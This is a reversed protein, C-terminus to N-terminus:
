CGSELELFFGSMEMDVRTLQAGAQAIEAGLTRGKSNGLYYELTPGLQQTTVALFHRNAKYFPDDQPTETVVLCGQWLGMLVIRHWEFYLAEDQHINILIKSRRLVTALEKGDPFAPANASFPRHPRPIHIYSTHPSLTHALHAMIDARRDTYSGIFAVDIPRESWDTQNQPQWNRVANTLGQFHFADAPISAKPEYQSFGSVFGPPLYTAPFGLTNFKAASQVNFDLVWGAAQLYPAARAFWRSHWQETNLMIARYREDVELVENGGELYFFEHPAVVVPIVDSDIQGITEDATSANYGAGKLAAAILEAVDRMFYNGLSHALVLFRWQRSAGYHVRLFDRGLQQVTRTSELATNADVPWLIQGQELWPHDDALPQPAHAAAQTTADIARLLSVRALLADNDTGLRRPFPPWGHEHLQHHQVTAQIIEALEPYTEWAECYLRFALHRQGNQIAKNALRLPHGVM